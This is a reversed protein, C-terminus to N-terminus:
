YAIRNIKLLRELEKIHEKLPHIEFTYICLYLLLIVLVTKYLLWKSDFGRKKIENTIVVLVLVSPLCALLFLGIISTVIEILIDM